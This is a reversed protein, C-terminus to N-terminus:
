RCSTRQGPPCAYGWLTTRHKVGGGVRINWLKVASAEVWRAWHKGNLPQTVALLDLYCTREKSLSCAAWSVGARDNWDGQATEGFKWVRTPDAPALPGEWGQPRFTVLYLFGYRVGLGTGVGPYPVPKRDDKHPHTISWNVGDEIWQRWEDNPVCYHRRNVPNCMTYEDFADSTVPRRTATMPKAARTAPDALAAKWAAKAVKTAQKKQKKTLKKKYAPANAAKKWM